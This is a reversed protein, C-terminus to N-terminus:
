CEDFLTELIPCDPVNGGECLAAKQKLVEAMRNLDAIKSEIESLHDLTAAKVERCNSGGGEALALLERVRNLSFGLERGRRIFNLRKLLAEGYLRYGGSSRPPAPMLGAREYYRITEIKCGTRRSVEGITIDANRSAM